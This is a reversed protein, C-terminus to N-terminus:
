PSEKTAPAIDLRVSHELVPPDVMPLPSLAYAAEPHAALQAAARELTARSLPAESFVATVRLWGPQHRVSLRFGEGLPEDVRDGELRLPAQDDAPYYWRVRGDAQVGFLAFYRPEPGANSCTFTVTDALSLGPSETVSQPGVRFVRIGILSEPGPKPGRVTLEVPTLRAHAPIEVRDSAPERVVLFLLLALAPVLGFVPLWRKWAWQQPEPLVADLVLAEVRDLAFPTPQTESAHCLVAELEAHRRYHDGCARCSAVEALLSRHRSAGLSGEFLLRIRRRTMWHLHLTV